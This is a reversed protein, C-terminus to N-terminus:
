KDDGPVSLSKELDKKFDNNVPQKKSKSSPPQAQEKKAPSPQQVSDPVLHATVFVAVEETSGQKNKNNFLGGLVPISSLGPTSKDTTYEQSKKLGAVSVTGGDQIRMTNSVIRRSVVPYNDSSRLLIDSVEIALDLTIDGNKGIHPTIGLITGYEIKQLQPTYYFSVSQSVTPMLSYYEETTIKIEAKKGDQALVQPSSMITASGNQELLNLNLQLANTFTKDTTYGMQIGWPWKGNGGPLTSNSFAGAEIQPWGWEVGLNLLNNRDMVVIRADLMVHRPPRDILELDSEIRNILIQPATIVVTSTTADAQVYKGFAPSLLKIAEEARLYNTKVFNTKSSAPFTAEKPDPSSVLYYDPTKKVVYGTGALVIELAKDLPVDKLECTILGAVTQDAIIIVGTQSSIDQLVQRIDTDIFVNSILKTQSKPQPKATESEAANAPQVTEPKPTPTEPQVAEPSVAEVPPQATEPEAAKTPPAAEPAAAEPKAAKQETAKHETEKEPNDENINSTVNTYAKNPPDFVYGEKTPTVTGNWGYPVTVSYHGKADTVGSGGGNDASMSVGEIVEGDITVTGSITLTILAGTYSQNSQDSTIKTYTRNAPEFTYGEKTPIVIGSSGYDVTATYKGGESTVPNGPLGKMVVGDMGTSGSVTFTRLKASYDQSKQNTTVPDYKKNAPEFIYGEKAPTTTGSWGYNVTVSYDGKDDTVPNGPLGNMAVGSQGTTGSITLTILAATYSQNGQDSTIKAYTRSAPEFTYGEKAPTITGSFGYDVAATYKGGESTVPNGPLGKMVVGDIGTTGSITFTKLKWKYDQNTQNAAVPDYKKNAPQFTYGEKTPTVTGSWGYNVTTTYKGNEDTVPNGPLGNMVVGKVDATGSITFTILKASYGQNTQNGTVKDYTKSVPEFTYGEKAPTVTGSFGYDVTATYKGGESTVPNGPLGNIVVGDIGTTGTITFTKLKASYDQNTQNTTVPDYKKDAPQFAYGEKTPTVTGKWGYEVTATYKGNEDTVPMGPLGNMTIGGTGTTGSITLTILAATYSQNGQNSTVKAYTRNVPEFAYGEKTPTVTGSFGYDVTATYLGGGKTVPNGPLGNMVVGDVGITGSITFTIKSAKYAGLCLTGSLIICLTVGATLIKARNKLM